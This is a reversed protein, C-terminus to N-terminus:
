SDGREPVNGPWTEIAALDRWYLSPCPVKEPDDWGTFNIRATERYAQWDPFADCYHCEGPAHLVSSDCHPQDARVGIVDLPHAMPMVGPEAKELAAISRDMLKRILGFM